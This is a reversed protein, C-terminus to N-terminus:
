MIHPFLLMYGYGYFADMNFSKRLFRHIPIPIHKLNIIPSPHTAINALKGNVFMSDVIGVCAQVIYLVLPKGRTKGMKKAHTPMTSEMNTFPFSAFMAVCRDGIMLKCCIGMGM